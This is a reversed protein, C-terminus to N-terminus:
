IWYKVFGNALSRLADFRVCWWWWWWCRRFYAYKKRPVFNFVACHLCMEQPLDTFEHALSRAVDATKGLKTLQSSPLIFATLSKKRDSWSKRRRSCRCKASTTQKCRAQPLLVDIARIAYTFMNKSICHTSSYWIHIYFVYRTHHGFTAAIMIFAKAITRQCRIAHEDSPEPTKDGAIVSRLTFRFFDVGILSQGDILGDGKIHTYM